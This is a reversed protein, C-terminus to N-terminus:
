PCERVKIKMGYKATFAVIKDYDPERKLMLSFWVRAMLYYRVWWAIKLNLQVDM